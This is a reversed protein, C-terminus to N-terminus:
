TIAIKTSGKILERVPAFLVDTKLLRPILKDPRSVYQM